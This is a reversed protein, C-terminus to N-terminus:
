SEDLLSFEIRRNMKRREATTNEVLPREEGYGVARLRSLSVGNRVFFEMVSEARRQSLALNNARTGLDDTHGGIELVAQPCQKAIRVLDQMLSQSASDIDSSGTDFGIHQEALRTRIAAACPASAMAQTVDTRTNTTQQVPVRVTEIVTNDEARTGVTGVRAALSPHVRLLAQLEQEDGVQINPAYDEPLNSLLTELTERSDNSGSLGQVIVEHDNVLVMGRSLERAAALAQTSAALYGDPAGPSVLLRDIVRGDGFARNALNLVSEKAINDPVLGSLTLVAAEVELHLEYPLDLTFIPADDEIDALLERARREAEEPALQPARAAAVLLEDKVRRVGAVSEVLGVARSKLAGNPAIGSVQLDRGDADVRAWSLNAEQLLQQSDQELRSEVYPVVRWLFLTTIIVQLCVGLLIVAGRHTSLVM